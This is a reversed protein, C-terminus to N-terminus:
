PASIYAVLSETAWGQAPVVEFEKSGLGTSMRGGMGKTLGAGDATGKFVDEYDALGLGTVDIRETTAVLKLVNRGYPPGSARLRFEDQRMAEDPIELEEGARLRNDQHYRNPFLVTVSGDPSLSLLTIYCDADAEATVTLLDGQMFRRKNIDLQLEFPPNPNDLAMLRKVCYAAELEPRMAQVLEQADEARHLPGREGAATVVRAAYEGGLYEGRIIRDGPEGAAALQVFNLNRLAGEVENTRRASGFDEVYVRLDEAPVAYGELTAQHGVEIAGRGELIQALSTAARVQTVEVRGVPENGGVWAKRGAYVAYISGVTVGAAEGAGLTVEGGAVRTVEIWTAEDEAAPPQGADGRDRFPARDPPVGELQPHHPCEQAAARDQVESILDGYGEFRRFNLERALCYTFYGFDGGPREEATEDARCAALLIANGEECLEDGMAAEDSPEQGGAPEETESTGVWSRSLYKQRTWPSKLLTGSHCADVVVVVNETALGEVWRGLDDDTLDQSPDEASVDCPCLSEDLNDAEDGNQDPVQSGHGSYVLVVLDGAQAQQNLWALGGRLGALTAERSLLVKTNAAPMGYQDVLIRRIEQVDNESARLDQIRPSLYDNVGVFLGWKEAGASGGCAVLALLMAWPGLRQM